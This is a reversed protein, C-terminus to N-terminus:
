QGVGEATRFEAVLKWFEEFAQQDGSVHERIAFFPGCSMSWGFRGRLFAGFRNLFDSGAEKLSHERLAYEYGIVMAELAAWRRDLEQDDYGIYMAPHLKVRELLDFLSRM